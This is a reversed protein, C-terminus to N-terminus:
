PCRAELLRRKSRLSLPRLERVAALRASSPLSDLYRIARRGMTLALAYRRSLAPSRYAAAWSDFLNVEIWRRAVPSLPGAGELRQLFFVLALFVDVKAQVELESPFSARLLRRRDEQFTWSTHLAHSLEELFVVFDLVNSDGLARRPDNRELRGVLQEDYFIAMRLDGGRLYYFFRGGEGYEEGRQGRARATLERCREIGVVFEELNVGSRRDYTNELLRQCQGLLTSGPESASGAGIRAAPSGVKPAGPRSTESPTM